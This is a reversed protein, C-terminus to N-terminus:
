WSVSREATAIAAQHAIAVPMASRAQGRRGGRAASTDPAASAAKPRSVSSEVPQATESSFANRSNVRTRMYRPTSTSTASTTVRRVAAETASPM